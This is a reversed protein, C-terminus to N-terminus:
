ARITIGGNDDKRSNSYLKNAVHLLTLVLGISIILPAYNGNDFYYRISIGIAMLPFLSCLCLFLSVDKFNM